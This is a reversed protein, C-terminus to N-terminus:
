AHHHSKEPQHAHQDGCVVDGHLDHKHDHDHTYIATNKGFLRIFEPDNSVQTPHGHCCVHQNLCIVEDTASMVLHLDHSVMVVACGIEDRIRAILQYLASQGNIDVGQVPEDLVLLQPKRVIARALLVRQMEGGSLGQVPHDALHSISVLAMAADCERGTAGSLAVFRRATMPLTADIQLKQPMYGVSLKPTRIVTGTSPAILGLLIHVLTTKGAGNPGIITVIKRRDISLDVANLAINDGFQKSVATLKLLPETM